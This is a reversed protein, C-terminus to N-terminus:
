FGVIQIRKESSVGNCSATVVLPEKDAIYALISVTNGDIEASYANKAVGRFTFIIDDHPQRVGNVVHVAKLKFSDFVNLTEPVPTVWEIRDDTIPVDQGPEVEQNEVVHLHFIDYIDPNENLVAKINTDGPALSVIMGDPSVTAIGNDEVYMSFTIRREHTDFVEDGNKYAHVRVIQSEGVAMLTQGAISITFTKSMGSAIHHEMDDDPVTETTRIDARIIHCSNDDMTFENAYNVVGYFGYAVNGLVCRTNNDISRTDDNLQLVAHTYGSPLAMYESYFPSGALELGKSVNMPTRIINNYWDYQNYTTNCKLVIATGSTAAIDSPNFVIWISNNYKVYAGVPIYDINKDLILIKQWTNDMHDGTTPNIIDSSRLRVSTWAYWDDGDLGQIEADFVNSAYKGVEEYYVASIPEISSDRPRTGEPANSINVLRNPYALKGNKIADKLAM